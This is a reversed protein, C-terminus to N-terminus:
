LSTHKEKKYKDDGAKSYLFYKAKPEIIKDLMDKTYKKGTGKKLYAVTMHPHYDPYTEVYDINDRLEKNTDHMKPCKVDIKLVDYEENEFTSLNALIAKYESLPKLYGKIDDWTIEPKIGYLLTVHAEKELGYAGEKEEEETGTYIDDKDLSEQIKEIEPISDYGIMICNYDYM